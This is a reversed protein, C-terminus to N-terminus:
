MFGSCIPKLGAARSERQKQIVAAAARVSDRLGSQDLQWERGRRSSSVVSANM